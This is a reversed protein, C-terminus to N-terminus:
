RRKENFYEKRIKEAKTIEKSPTKRTKKVIGHTAVILTDAETDWFAFLRYQKGSHLTRFEWIETGILKKFIKVNREGQEIRHVNEYIKDGVSKPQAEIFRLAEEMFVVNLRNATM